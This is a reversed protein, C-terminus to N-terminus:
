GSLKECVIWCSDFVSYYIRLSTQLHFAAMSGTYIDMGSRARVLLFGSLSCYYCVM